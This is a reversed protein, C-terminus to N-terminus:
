RATATECRFCYSLRRTAGVGDSTLSAVVCNGLQRGDEVTVTYRGPEDRRPEEADLVAIPAPAVICVGYRRPGAAPGDAPASDRQEGLDPTAEVLAEANPIPAGNLKVAGALVPSALALTSAAGAAVLFSLPTM